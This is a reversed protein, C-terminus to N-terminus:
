HYIKTKIKAVTDEYTKEDALAEILSPDEDLVAAFKKAYGMDIWVGLEEGIDQALRMQTLNRTLLLEEKRNEVKSIIKELMKM